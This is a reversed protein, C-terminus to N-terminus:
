CVRRRPELPFQKVTGGETLLSTADDM